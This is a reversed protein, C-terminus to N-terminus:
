GFIDLIFLMLKFFVLIIPNWVVFYRVLDLLNLWLISANWPNKGLAKHVDVKSACFPCSNKKGILSWGRLCDEHFKHSCQLTYVKPSIVPGEDGDDPKEAYHNEEEPILDLGCLACISDLRAETGDEAHDLEEKKMLGLSQSIHASSVAAIDRSLVGFYMSYSLLTFCFMLFWDSETKETSKANGIAKSQATSHSHSMNKSTLSDLKFFYLFLLFYTAMGIFYTIQHIYNFYKYVFRPTTKHLPRKRSLELIKYHSGTFCIWLVIFSFTEWHYEQSYVFLLGFLIPFVWLGFLTLEFYRQPHRQRFDLLVFQVVLFLFLLGVGLFVSHMPHEDARTSSKLRKSNLRPSDSPETMGNTAMGENTEETKEM